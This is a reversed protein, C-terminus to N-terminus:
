TEGAAMVTDAHEQELGDDLMSRTIDLVVAEDSCRVVEVRDKVHDLRLVFGDAVKIGEAFQALTKPM